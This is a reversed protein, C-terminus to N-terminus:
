INQNKPLAAFASVFPLCSNNFSSSSPLRLLVPERGFGTGVDIDIWTDTKIIKGEYEDGFSFTPTHGFITM